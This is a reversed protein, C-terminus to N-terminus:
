RGRLGCDLHPQGCLRESHRGGGGGGSQVQVMVVRMLFLPCHSPERAPGAVPHQKVRSLYWTGPHSAVLIGLCSLGWPHGQLQAAGLGAPCSLLSVLVEPLLSLGGTASRRWSGSWM